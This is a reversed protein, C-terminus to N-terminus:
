FSGVLGSFLLVGIIFFPFKADEGLYNRVEFRFPTKAAEMCILFFCLHAEQSFSVLDGYDAVRYKNM